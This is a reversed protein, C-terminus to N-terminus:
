GINEVIFENIKINKFYVKIINTGPLKEIIGKVSDYSNTRIIFLNNCIEEYIEIKYYYCKGEPPLKDFFDM